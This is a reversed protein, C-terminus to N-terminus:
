YGGAPGRSADLANAPAHSHGRAATDVQASSRRRPAQPLTAERAKLYAQLQTHSGGVKRYVARQSYREGLEAIAQEIQEVREPTM